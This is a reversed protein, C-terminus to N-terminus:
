LIQHFATFLAACCGCITGQLSFQVETVTAMAVGSILVGLSGLLAWPYTTGLYYDVTCMCPINLFKLVQYTGVTNFLLSRNVFVLTAVDSVAIQMKTMWPLDEKPDLVGIAVLSKTFLVATLQHLFIVFSPFRFNHMVFARKMLLVLGVTGAINALVMIGTVLTTASFLFASLSSAFGGGHDSGSAVMPSKRPAVERM